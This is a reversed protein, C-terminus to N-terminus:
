PFYITITCVLICRINSNEGGSTGDSKVHLTKEPATTGIGLRGNATDLSMKTSTANKFNIFHSDTFEMAAVSDDRIMMRPNGDAASYMTFEEDFFM